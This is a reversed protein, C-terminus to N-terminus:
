KCLTNKCCLKKGGSLTSLVCKAVDIKYINLSNILKLTKIAPHQRM